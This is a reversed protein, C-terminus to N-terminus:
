LNEITAAVSGGSPPWGSTDYAARAKRGEGRNDLGRFVCRVLVLRRM